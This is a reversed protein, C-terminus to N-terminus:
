KPVETTYLRPNLLKEYTSSTRSDGDLDLGLEKFIANDYEKLTTQVTKILQAHHAETTKLEQQLSLLKPHHARLLDLAQIVKDKENM